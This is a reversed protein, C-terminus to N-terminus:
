TDIKDHLYAGIGSVLIGISLATVAEVLVDAEKVKCKYIGGLGALVLSLGLLWIIIWALKHSEKMNFLIKQGVVIRQVQTKLYLM